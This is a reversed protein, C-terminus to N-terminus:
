PQAEPEALALTADGAIGAIAFEDPNEATIEVVTPRYSRGQRVYVVPKGELTFLAQAPVIVADAIRHVVIDMTGTMGPRLREDPKAIPAYGRFDRTPPWDFSQQTLPSVGRLRAELSLEPLADLRVRVERGERVRGRDTEELKGEMELTSLDPIEAIAAGPWVQDGVKFPKANMWGQSYNDLFVIIGNLPATLEMRSLRYETLEVESQAEDKGRRLAAVKAASSAVHLRNTAEQVRQKERTLELALRSREAQMASLIESKSVELEAREVEYRANALDLRDQEAEIRAEAEAQELKATAEELAAKKEALQRSASSPDFRIVPEGQRIPEGEKALWVIRLEPVNLPAVMQASRGARLEGRCRVLALFEGVRAQATPLNGDTQRGRFLSAGGAAIAALCAVMLLGAWLRRKGRTPASAARPEPELGPQRATETM